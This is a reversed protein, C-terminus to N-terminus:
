APVGVAEVQAQDYLEVGRHIAHCVVLYGYDWDTLDWEWSDGFGPYTDPFTSVAERAEYENDLDYGPAHSEWAERVNTNSAGDAEEEAYDFAQELRKDLRARSYSRVKTFDSATIKQAWYGFDIWPGAPRRFFQLMDELRSFTLGSSLDGQISLHWPWTILDYGYHYSGPAAIRLHRYLGDEHVIKLEHKETWQAFNKRASKETSTEFV